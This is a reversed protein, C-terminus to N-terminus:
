PVTISLTQCVPYISKLGIFRFEFYYTGTTFSSLGLQSPIVTFTNTGTLSPLNISTSTQLYVLRWPKYYTQNVGLMHVSFVHLLNSPSIYKDASNDDWSWVIQFTIGTSSISTTSFNSVIGIVSNNNIQHVIDVDYESLEFNPYIFNTENLQPIYRISM